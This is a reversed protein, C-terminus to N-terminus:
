FTVKTNLGNLTIYLEPHLFSSFFIYQWCAFVICLGFGFCGKDLFQHVSPAINEPCASM